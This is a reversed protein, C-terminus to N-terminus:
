LNSLAVYLVGHSFVPHCFAWYSGALYEPDELKFEEKLILTYMDGQHGCFLRMQHPGNHWDWQTVSVYGKSHFFFHM